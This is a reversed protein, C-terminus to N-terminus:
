ACAIPELEPGQDDNGKDEAQREGRGEVEGLLAGGGLRSPRQLRGGARGDGRGPRDRVQAVGEDGDRVVYPGRDHEDAGLVPLPGVRSTQRGAELIEEGLEPPARLDLLPRPRAEDDRGVAVDQGVVVHHGAGVADGDPQVVLPLERGFDHAAIRCCVHRDDLDVRAVQGGHAHAIGVGGAHALPHEGDAVRHALLEGEGDRGPDHAGLATEEVAQLLGAVRDLVEDM